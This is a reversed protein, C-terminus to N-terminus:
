LCHQQLNTLDLLRFILCIGNRLQSGKLLAVARLYGKDAYGTITRCYEKAVAPNKRLNKKTSALRSVAASRNDPLQPRDNKFPV